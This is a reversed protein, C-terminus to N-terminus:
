SLKCDFKTAGDKTRRSRLMDKDEALGLDEIGFCEPTLHSGIVNWGNSITRELTALVKEFAGHSAKSRVPQSASAMLM